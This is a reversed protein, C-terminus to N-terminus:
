KKNGNALIQLIKKTTNNIDSSEKVFKHIMIRVNSIEDNKLSEFYILRFFIVFAGFKYYRVINIAKKM